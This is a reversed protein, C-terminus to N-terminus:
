GPNDIWPHDWATHNAVWDLLVAMGRAHAADTLKRLSALSFLLLVSYFALRTM